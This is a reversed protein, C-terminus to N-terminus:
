NEKLGLKLVFTTRCMPCEAMKESEATWEGLCGEHFNHGCPLVQVSEGEEYEGQCIACEKADFKLVDSKAADFTITDKVYQLKRGEDGRLSVGGGDFAEDLQEELEEIQVHLQMHHNQLNM